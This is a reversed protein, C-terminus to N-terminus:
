LGGLGEAYLNLKIDRAKKFHAFSVDYARDSARLEIAAVLQDHEGCAEEWRGPQSLTTAPSRVLHLDLRELLDRLPENHAARWVARHFARNARVLDASASADANRCQKAAAQLLRVDHDTRRDAAMRGATAELM